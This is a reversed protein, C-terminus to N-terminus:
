SIADFDKCVAFLKGIRNDYCGISSIQKEHESLNVDRIVCQM